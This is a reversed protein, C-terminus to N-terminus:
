FVLVSLATHFFLHMPAKAIALESAHLTHTAWMHAATGPLVSLQELSSNHASASPRLSLGSAESTQTSPMGLAM